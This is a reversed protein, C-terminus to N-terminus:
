AAGAAKARSLACSVIWDIEKPSYPYSIFDFAGRWMADLYLRQDDSSSCVVVPVQGEGRANESLIDRFTGDELQDECFMIAVPERTLVSRAEKLTSAYIPDLGMGALTSVLVGHGDKDSLALLVHRSEPM